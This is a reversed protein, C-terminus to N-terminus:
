SDFELGNTRVDLARDKLRYAGVYMCLTCDDNCTNPPMQRPRGKSAHSLKWVRSPTHLEAADM